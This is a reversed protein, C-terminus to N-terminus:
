PHVTNDPMTAGTLIVFKLDEIGTMDAGSLNAGSLDASIMRAGRMNAYSLDARTLNAPSLFAGTLNTERLDARTLNARVFSSHFLNAGFLNAHSLNADNMEANSVNARSLNAGSLNAGTLDARWLYWGSRDCGHWDVNPGAIVIDCGTPPSAVAPFNPGVERPTHIEQPTDCSNNRISGDPWITNCTRPFGTTGTLNAYTLNAYRLDAGSLNAGSFDVHKLSAGYLNANTLNTGVLKANQLTAYSLNIGTLNANSLNQDILRCEYSNQYEGAGPCRRETWVIHTTNSWFTPDPQGAGWRGPDDSVQANALGISSAIGITLAILVAALRINKM